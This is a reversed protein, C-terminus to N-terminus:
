SWFGLPQAAGNCGIFCSWSIRKGGIPSRVAHTNRSNFLILDGRRPQILLPDGRLVAENVGYSGANRYGTKRLEANSEQSNPTKASALAQNTFPSAASVSTTFVKTTAAQLAAEYLPRM